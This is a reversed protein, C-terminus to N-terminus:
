LATKAMGAQLIAPDFQIVPKFLLM